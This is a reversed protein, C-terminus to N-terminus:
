GGENETYTFEASQLYWGGTTDLQLSFNECRRAKVPCDLVFSGKGTCSGFSVTEGDSYVIKASLSSASELLTVHLVADMLTVGTAPVDPFPSFRVSGVLATEKTFGTPTQADNPYYWLSGEDTLMYLGNCYAFATPRESGQELWEGTYTDYCYLHKNQATDWFGVWYSRSDSGATVDRLDETDIPSNLRKPAGGGWVMFGNRSLYYLYQGVVCLSNGAGSKVGPLSTAVVEYNSPRTGVIRYAGTETFFVPSGDYACGATIPGPVSLRVAYSDSALGEYAYWNYPDGARSAYIMNGQSCWFRNNCAFVIDPKPAKRTLKVFDERYGGELEVTFANEDFYLTTKDASKGRLIYTGNNEPIVTCGSIEIVDGVEFLEDEGLVNLANAKASQGNLYGDQFIFSGGMGREITTLEKTQVDYCYKEPFILVYRDDAVMMRNDKHYLEFESEGDYYFTNNRIWCPKRFATFFQCNDMNQMQYRYNRSGIKPYRDFSVNESAALSNGKQTWPPRIGSFQQYRVKKVAASSANSFKM